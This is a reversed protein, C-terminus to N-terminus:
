SRISSIGTRATRSIRPVRCPISVVTGRSRSRTHVQDIGRGPQLVEGAPRLGAFERRRDLVDGIHEHGGDYQDLHRTSHHLLTALVLRQLDRRHHMLDPDDLEVAADCEGCRLEPNLVLQRQGVADDERSGPLVVGGDPGEVGVELPNGPHPVEGPYLSQSRPGLTEGIDATHEQIEGLWLHGINRRRESERSANAINTATEIVGSWAWSTLLSHDRIWM